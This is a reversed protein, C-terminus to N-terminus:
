LVKFGWSDYKAIKKGTYRDRIDCWNSNDNLVKGFYFSVNRCFKEKLEVDLNNWVEPDFYVSHSEKDLKSIVDLKKFKEIFEEVESLILTTHQTNVTQTVPTNEQKSPKSFVAILIIVVIFALIVKIGSSLYNISLKKGCHPCLTAKSSIAKGCESCNILSM